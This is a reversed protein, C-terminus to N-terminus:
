SNLCSAWWIRRPARAPPVRIGHLRSGRVRIDGVEEGGSLRRNEIAINGGMEVLTEILGTRTPNLMISEVTLDSGEVILAAVIAFAASSPDGPVDIHQARLEHQGTISIHRGDDQAAIEIQAGFAKLMRETHDRTAVAERVTTRGDARLGALLIASKVQASPVATRYEIPLLPHRGTVSLPPLTDGDRGELTAGMLRLPEIIRAMPRGRLSADGDLVCRLPLGALIGAFLRMSTGSNGCDLVGAPARLGDVGPSVVRYDVTRGDERVREVDAGLAAVIGATSRVDAGDGAADIRSEGEALLALMLARHSLSKDGPVRLEGRLRAPPAVTRTELSATVAPQRHPGPDTSRCAAAPPSRSPAM